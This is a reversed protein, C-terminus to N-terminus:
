LRHEKGLGHGEGLELLVLEMVTTLPRIGIGLGGEDSGRTGIDGVRGSAGGDVRGERRCWGRMERELSKGRFFQRDVAVM